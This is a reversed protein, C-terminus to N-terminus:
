LNVSFNRALTLCYNTMWTVIIMVDIENDIMGKM